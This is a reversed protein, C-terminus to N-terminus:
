SRDGRNRQAIRGDKRDKAPVLQRKGPGRRSRKKGAEAKKAVPDSVEPYHGSPTPPLPHQTECPEDPAEDRELEPPDPSLADSVPAESAPALSSPPNSPEPDPHGDIAPHFPRQQSRPMHGPPASEAGPRDAATPASPQPSALRPHRAITGADWGQARRMESILSQGFSQKPPRGCVVGPRGFRPWTM